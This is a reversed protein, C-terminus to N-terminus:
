SSLERGLAGYVNAPADSSSWGGLVTIKQWSMGQLRADIVAGHRLGYRQWYLRNPWKYHKAVTAILRNLEKGIGAFPRQEKPMGTTVRKWCRTVDIRGPALPKWFGAVRSRGKRTRANRRKDKSVFVVDGEDTGTRVHRVQLRELENPRLWAAYTLLTAYALKKKGKREAYRVIQLMRDWRIAGKPKKRSQRKQHAASSPDGGDYEFGAVATMFRESRLFSLREEDGKVKADWKLAAIFESVDGHGRSRDRLFTVIGAEQSGEFSEIFNRVCFVKRSYKSRTEQVVSLRIGEALLDNLPREADVSDPSMRRRKEDQAPELISSTEEPMHVEVYRVDEPDNRMRKGRMTEEVKMTEKPELEGRALSIVAVRVNPLRGVVVCEDGDDDLFQTVGNEGLYYEYHMTASPEGQIRSVRRGWWKEVASDVEGVLSWEVVVWDAPGLTDLFSIISNAVWKGM